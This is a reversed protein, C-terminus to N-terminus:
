CKSLGVNYLWSVDLLFDSLGVGLERRAESPWWVRSVILAWLVGATVAISRHLAVDYVSINQSRSNYSPSSLRRYSFTQDQFTLHKGSYHQLTTPCSSLAVPRPTNRSQNLDAKCPAWFETYASSTPRCSPYESTAVSIGAYTGARADTGYCCFLINIGM